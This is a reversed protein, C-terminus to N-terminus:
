VPNMSQVYDTSEVEEASGALHEIMRYALAAVPGLLVFWFIVGFYGKHAFYLIEEANMQEGSPENQHYFQSLTKPGLCWVVVVFSFIFEILFGSFGRHDALLIATISRVLHWRLIELHDLFSMEAEEDIREEHAMPFAAFICADDCLLQVSAVM